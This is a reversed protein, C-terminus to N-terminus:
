IVTAGAPNRFGEALAASLAGITVTRVHNAKSSYWTVAAVGALRQLSQLVTLLDHRTSMGLWHVLGIVALTRNRCSSGVVDNVPKGAISQEERLLINM